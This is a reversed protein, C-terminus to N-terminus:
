YKREYAVRGGVLTYDVQTDLIRHESIKMLDQSFITFDALKGIEISGKISEEFSAYAADLTYSRLAQDRSMKLEAEYGEKPEGSLTKRTVSAYFSAVPSIPEVPADTGNIVVAGASLLKQWAYAGARIREIGLRDIAWPRDSSLHIAQMSAVVGLSAFRPIDADDIHQAHEIRFRHNEAERPYKKFANEFQNLVERNAKDGIAHVALQFGHQLSQEAMAGIFDMPNVPMGNHGSRDKYDQLLWAGRSGLAGDAYLKISRVNLFHNHAGLMAGREFWHRVLAEDKGDLMAWIRVGLRNELAFQEMIRLQLDNTGANHLSTIGNQLAEQVGLELANVETEATNTNIHVTILDQANENFIGTPEGKDNKIIEGGEVAPTHQTIGAIEMAKANAFGAHGSAHTLFVPNDPSIKSLAHHTQFGKVAPEPAPSWKSQHWGRGLIWEDPKARQVAEAVKQVLEDYNKVSNLDLNMKAYGLSFIHAHGEIFGPTMARGNLEIIRTKPGIRRQVDSASGVFVIMDDEVAVAEAIENSKNVTYIPGGRIVLSAEQLEAKPPQNTEEGGCASLLIVYGTVLVIKVAVAMKM